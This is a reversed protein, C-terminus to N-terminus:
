TPAKEEFGSQHSALSANPDVFDSRINEGAIKASEELLHVAEENATEFNVTYGGVQGADVIIGCLLECIIGFDEEFEPFHPSFSSRLNKVVVMAPSAVIVVDGLASVTTLKLLLKDIAVESVAAIRSIHRTKALDVSLLHSYQTNNAKICDMLNKSMREDNSKLRIVLDQLRRVQKELLKQVADVRPKLSTGPKPILCQNENQPLARDIEWKSEHYM